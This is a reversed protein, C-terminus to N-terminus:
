QVLSKLLTGWMIFLSNPGRPRFRRIDVLRSHHYAAKYKRKHRNLLHMKNHNLLREKDEEDEM